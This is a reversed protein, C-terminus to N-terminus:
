WFEEEDGCPIFLEEVMRAGDVKGGFGFIPVATNLVKLSDRIRLVNNSECFILKPKTLKLMQAIEDTFQGVFNFNNM